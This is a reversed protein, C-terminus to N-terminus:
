LTRATERDRSNEVKQQSKPHELRYQKQREQFALEKEQRKRLSDIARARQELGLMIVGKCDKMDTM